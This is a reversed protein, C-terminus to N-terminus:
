LKMMINIATQGGLVVGCAIAPNPFWKGYAMAYASIDVGCGVQMAFISRDFGILWQVYCETHHHGGVTSVMNRKAKTLSKSGIAHHYFIGDITVHDTFWWNPTNLVDKYDKIWAKPIGGSFAKRMILIDHNGLMIEANPFAKYWKHIKKIAYDLEDGGSLGDPDSEHYSSYHNDIIDGIFVVRNCNYDKYTQICHALYGNL